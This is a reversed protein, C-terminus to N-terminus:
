DVEESLKEGYKGRRRTEEEKYSIKKQENKV